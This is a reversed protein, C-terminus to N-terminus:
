KKRTPGNWLFIWKTVVYGLSALAVSLSAVENLQQLTLTGIFGLFGVAPTYDRGDM